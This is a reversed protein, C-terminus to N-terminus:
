VKGGFNKFGSKRIRGFIIMHNNESSFIGSKMKQFFFFYFHSFKGGVKNKTSKLKAQNTIAWEDLFRTDPGSKVETIQVPYM